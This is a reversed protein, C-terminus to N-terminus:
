DKENVSSSIGRWAGQCEHLSYVYGAKMLKQVSSKKFALNTYFYAAPLIFANNGQSSHLLKTAMAFSDFTRYITRKWMKDPPYSFPVNWRAHALQIAKQFIPHHPRSLFLGIAPAMRSDLGDHYDMRECAIVFDFHDALETCSKLCLADHDFYLGGEKDMIVFRILDSKEGYNTSIKLLDLVPEFYEETILRRVMGPIPLPRDLSDTWFFMTWDPHHTRFSQVNAISEQPFPKPGIWILHMHHPIHHLPAQHLRRVGKKYNASFQQLTKKDEKSLQHVEDKLRSINGMLQVYTYELRKHRHSAAGIHSTALVLASIVPLLFRHVIM